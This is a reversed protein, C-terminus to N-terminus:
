GTASLFHRPVQLTLRWIAITLMVLGALGLILEGNFSLLMDLSGSDLFLLALWSCYALAAALPVPLWLSLVLALGAVLLFPVLWYLTVVLFSGNGQMWGALSLILGLGVDYGLVVVLRAVILQLVSPPCALEWELTHLGVGRFTSAVSLFALLPALARLWALTAPNQTSLEIITGVLVIVLSLVWFTLRFISVQTRATALLAVLRNRHALRERIAQRVVSRQPMVQGLVSLLHQADIPTIRRDPWEALQQVISTWATREVPTADLDRLSEVLDDQNDLNM